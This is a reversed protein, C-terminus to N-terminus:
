AFQSIHSKKDYFLSIFYYVEIIGNFYCRAMFLNLWFFDVHELCPWKKLAESTSLIAEYLNHLSTLCASFIYRETVLRQRLSLPM